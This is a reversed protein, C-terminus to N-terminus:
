GFLNNAVICSTTGCMVGLAIILVVLANLRRKALRDPTELREDYDAYFIGALGFSVLFGGLFWFVWAM